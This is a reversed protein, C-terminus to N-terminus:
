EDNDKFFFYCTTVDLCSAPIYGDIILRALVSKGCGPDASVRGSASINRVRYLRNIPAIPEIYGKPIYRLLEKAYSAVALAVYGQWQKNKHSDAYDCIGRIIIYPFDLMLGAVEM